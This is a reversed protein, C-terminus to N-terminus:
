QSLAPTDTYTTATANVTTPIIHEHITAHEMPHLIGYSHRQNGEGGRQPSMHQKCAYIAQSHLPCDQNPIFIHSYSDEDFKLSYDPPQNPNLKTTPCINLQMANHLNDDNTANTTKCGSYKVRFFYPINGKGKPVSHVSCFRAPKVVHESGLCYPFMVHLSPISIVPLCLAKEIMCSVFLKTNMVLQLSQNKPTIFVTIQWM